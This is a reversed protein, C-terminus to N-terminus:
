TTNHSLVTTHSELLLQPHLPIKKKITNENQTNYDAWYIFKKRIPNEKKTNYDAIKLGPLTITRQDWTNCHTSIQLSNQMSEWIGHIPEKQSVLIYM